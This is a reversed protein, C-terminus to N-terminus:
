IYTFYIIISLSITISIIYFNFLYKDIDYPEEGYKKKLSEFLEKENDKYKLSIRELFEPDKLKDPHYKKYFRYLRNTLKTKYYINDKIEILESYFRSESLCLLSCLVIIICFIYFINFLNLWTLIISSLGSIFVYKQLNEIQISQKKRINKLNQIELEKCKYKKEINDLDLCDNKSSEIQEIFDSELDNFKLQINEFKNKWYINLALLSQIAKFLDEQKSNYLIKNLDNITPNNLLPKFLCIESEFQNINLEHSRENYAKNALNIGIQYNIDNKSHKSQKDFESKTIKECFQTM